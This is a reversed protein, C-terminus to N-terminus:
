YHYNFNLATVTCANDTISMVSMTDTPMAACGVQDNDIITVHNDLMIPLLRDCVCEGICPIQWSMTINCTYLLVLALHESSTRLSCVHKAIMRFTTTM